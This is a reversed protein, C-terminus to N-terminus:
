GHEFLGRVEGRDVKGNANRPLADVFAWGRPHKGRGIKGKLFAALVGAELADEAQPVVAAHVIEGWRDDPLGVVCVDMVGPHERLAEEVEVPDVTLGGSVIRDSIRGTIWLHGEEDLWGVDGSALWGEEDFPDEAEVYGQMLTPGRVMLDGREGIRVEVGDLPAGVTGPKERVLGAPATAVQSGAETFGYTLAVPWGADVARELLAEPCRAGGVLAAEFTEPPEGSGVDLLKALMAPVLSAHTIDGSLIAASARNAEFGSMPYVSAGTFGARLWLALGGIHAPALVGLWREEGTLSLRKSSARAHTELANFSFSAVKPLGSTGSTAVLAYPSAEQIGPAEGTPLADIHLARKSKPADLTLLNASQVCRSAHSETQHNALVAGPRVRELVRVTERPTWDPNLVALTCGARPVGHLAWGFPPANPLLVAVTHGTLGAGALHTAIRAAHEDLEGYMWMADQHTIAVRDPDKRAHEALPDM